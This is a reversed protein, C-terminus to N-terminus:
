GRRALGKLSLRVLDDAGDRRFREHSDPEPVLVERLGRILLNAGQEVRTSCWPAKGRYQCRSFSPIWGPTTSGRASTAGRRSSCGSRTSPFAQSSRACPGIPERVWEAEFCWSTGLSANSVAHSTSSTTQGSRSCSRRVGRM